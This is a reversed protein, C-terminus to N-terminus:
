KSEEGIKFVYEVVKNIVKDIRLFDQKIYTDTVTKGSSHNLCLSIDDKSIDCENRAITAFSHRASYFQIYDIGLEECLSRMGRHIGKTLNRVNSYRKYFDFLHQGSLDRYKNIIPLALPHVYVSIFANDKRRDKTKQREYEIRGNVMRCNLMDVANMGALLFSLIYIDRTFMTTRKRKNVPSYNYIKRIIDVDVARKKAELVAPITYVKFPDNTIIIDGKEYDNFHLLAANFVSQIIGMYSHVGTDNLASKKITKYAQKATKNQRVTIYREQRLWAEYERLFRSTLDKILLKENGNKHNLFHCLSNIGTTKVTKTGENPTKEIFMRAFEIFDIEKRQKRREIMAVIDKSTECENVVDQHENIIQRYERVLGDLEEKIKESTITGSASNRKFRVLETYISTSIYSSTRNHSIRIKPNYTNDSKKHHKFVVWSVTAM